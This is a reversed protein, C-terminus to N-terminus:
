SKKTSVLSFQEVVVIVLFSLNVEKNVITAGHADQRDLNFEALIIRNMTRQVVQHCNLIIM